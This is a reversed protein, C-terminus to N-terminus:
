GTLDRGAQVGVRGSHRRRHTDDLRLAILRALTLAALTSCHDAPALRVQMEEGPEHVLEVATEPQNSSVRTTAPKVFM